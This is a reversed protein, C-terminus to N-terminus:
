LLSSQIAAKYIAITICDFLRSQKTPKILCSDIGLEKMEAPSLLQSHSTLMVLHTVCIVPVSKIARALATRHECRCQCGSM